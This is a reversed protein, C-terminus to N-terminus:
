INLGMFFTDVLFTAVFFWGRFLLRGVHAEIRYQFGNFIEVFKESSQKKFQSRSVTLFLAINVM